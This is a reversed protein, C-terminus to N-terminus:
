LSYLRARVALEQNEQTLLPSIFPTGSLIRVGL